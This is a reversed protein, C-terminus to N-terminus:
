RVARRIRQLAVRQRTLQAPIRFALTHMLTTWARGFQPTGALPGGPGANRTDPEYTARYLTPTVGQVIYTKGDCSVAGTSLVAVPVQRRRGDCPGGVFDTTITPDAM